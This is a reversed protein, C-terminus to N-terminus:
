LKGWPLERPLYSGRSVSLGFKAFSLVIYVNLFFLVRDFICFGEEKDKFAKGLNYYEIGQEGRDVGSMYSPLRAFM